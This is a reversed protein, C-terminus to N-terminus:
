FGLSPSLFHPFEGHVVACSKHVSKGRWSEKSWNKELRQQRTSNLNTSSLRSLTYAWENGVTELATASQAPKTHKSKLSSTLTQTYNGKCKILPSNISIAQIMIDISPICQKNLENFNYKKDPQIHGLKTESISKLQEDTATLDSRLSCLRKTVSDSWSTLPVTYSNRVIVVEPIGFSGSPTHRICRRQSQDCM